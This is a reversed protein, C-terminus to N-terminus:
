ILSDGLSLIPSGVGILWLSRSPCTCKGSVVWACESSRYIHHFGSLNEKRRIRQWAKV